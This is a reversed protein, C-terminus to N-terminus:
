KGMIKFFRKRNIVKKKNIKNFIQSNYNKNKYKIMTKLTQKKEELKNNNYKFKFIEFTLM